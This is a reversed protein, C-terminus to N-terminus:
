RKAAQLRVAVRTGVARRTGASPRQSSVVLRGHARRPRLVLGLRCKSRALLRRAGAVSRGHLRPVVCRVSQTVSGAVSQAPSGGGGAGPAAAPAAPAAPAPAPHAVPAPNHLDPAADCAPGTFDPFPALPAGGGAGTAAVQRFCDVARGDPDKMVDGSATTQEGVPVYLEPHDFPASQSKVRPDTLSKLFEVLDNKDADSLNLTDLNPSKEANDFDGGRSYFDVVQRLTGQGGNHFYPATLEVNRLGPIKFAGDVALPTEGSLRALSLPKPVATGDVSGIGPDDATPRVGINLFGTDTWRGLKDLQIPGDGAVDLATAETMAPGNHCETCKGTTQFVNLGRAAAPSLANAEGRFFKDAPTQDSVLTAEYSQIALGWFLPFNFEM